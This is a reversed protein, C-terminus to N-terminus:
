SEELVEPKGQEVLLVHALHAAQESPPVVFSIGVAGGGDSAMRIAGVDVRVDVGNVMFWAASRPSPSDCGEPTKAIREWLEECTPGDEAGCEDCLPVLPGQCHGNRHIVHRAKGDADVAAPRWCAACRTGKHIAIM